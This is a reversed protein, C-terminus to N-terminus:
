ACNWSTPLTSRSSNTRAAVVGTLPWGCRWVRMEVNRSAFRGARVAAEEDLEGAMVAEVKVRIQEIAEPTTKWLMGQQRLRRQDSGPRTRSRHPALRDSEREVKEDWRANWGKLHVTVHTETADVVQAEVWSYSSDKVDVWDGVSLKYGTWGEEEDTACPLFSADAQASPLGRCLVCHWVPSAGIKARCVWLFVKGQGDLSPVVQEFGDGTGVGSRSGCQVAVGPVCASEGSPTQGAKLITVASIATSFTDGSNGQDGDTHRPPMTSAPGCRYAIRVENAPSAPTTSLPEALLVWQPTDSTTPDAAPAAAPAEDEESTSPLQARAEDVSGTVVRVEVIPHSHAQKFYWLSVPESSALGTAEHGGSQRALGAIDVGYGDGDVVRHFRHGGMTGGYTVQLATVHRGEVAMIGTATSPVRGDRTRYLM